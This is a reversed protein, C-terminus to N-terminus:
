EPMIKLEENLVKLTDTLVDTHLRVEDYSELAIECADPSVAFCGMIYGRQKGFERLSTHAAFVMIETMKVALAETGTEKGPVIRALSRVAQSTAIRLEDRVLDFLTGLAEPQNPDKVTKLHKWGSAFPVLFYTKFAAEVIDDIPPAFPLECPPEGVDWYESVPQLRRFNAYEPLYRLASVCSGTIFTSSRLSITDTIDLALFSSDILNWASDQDQSALAERILHHRADFNLPEAKLELTWFSLARDRFAPDHQALKILLHSKLRRTAFDGPRQALGQDVSDLAEELRNLREYGLALWYCVHPWRVLTEPNMRFALELLPVAEEPKDFDLILSTAKSILAEPQKPDLALAKDFCEMEQTHQGVHHYASALNKWIVPQNEDLEIALKYRAIAADHDGLEGLVNGLNYFIHWTHIPGSSLLEEFIQRAAVVSSRDGERIGRETLICARISRYEPKDVRRIARNIEALAEEYRHSKYYAWALLQLAESRDPTEELVRRLQLIAAETQEGDILQSIEKLSLGGGETLLVIANPGLYRNLVDPGLYKVAIDPNVEELQLRLWERGFVIM